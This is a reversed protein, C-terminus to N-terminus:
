SQACTGDMRASRIPRISVPGEDSARLTLSLLEGWGTSIRNPTGIVPPHNYRHDWWWAGIDSRTGDSDHVAPSGQDIAPSGFQFAYGTNNPDFKPDAVLNSGNVPRGQWPDSIGWSLNFTAQLALSPNSSIIYFDPHRSYFINSTLIVHVSEDAVLFKEPGGVFYPENLVFTNNRFTINSNIVIQNEAGAICRTIMGSSSLCVVNGFKCDQVLVTSVGDIRLNGAIETGKLTFPNTFGANAYLSVTNARSNTINVTSPSLAVFDTIHNGDVDGYAESLINHAVWDSQGDMTSGGYYFSIYRLPVSNDNWLLALDDYADGNFNVRYGRAHGYPDILRVRGLPLKM